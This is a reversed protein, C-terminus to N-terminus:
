ILLGKSGSLKNFTMLFKIHGVYLGNKVMIFPDRVMHESISYVQLTAFYMENEHNSTQHQMPQKIKGLLIM